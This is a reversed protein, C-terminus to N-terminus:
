LEFYFTLQRLFSITLNCNIGLITISKAIEEKDKEIENVLVDMNDKMDEIKEEVENIQESTTQMLKEEVDSSSTVIKLRLDAFNQQFDQELKQLQTESSTKLKQVEILMKKNEETVQSTLEEIKTTM